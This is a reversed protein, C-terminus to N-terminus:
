VTLAILADKFLDVSLGRDGTRMKGMFDSSILQSRSEDLVPCVGNSSMVNTVDSHADGRDDRKVVITCRALLVCARDSLLNNPDM